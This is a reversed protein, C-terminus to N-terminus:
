LAALLYNTQDCERVDFVNSENIVKKQRFKNAHIMSYSDKIYDNQTGDKYFM